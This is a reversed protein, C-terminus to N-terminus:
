EHRSHLPDAVRTWRSDGLDLDHCGLGLLFLHGFLWEAGADVCAVLLPAGLAAVPTIPDPADPRGTVVEVADLM